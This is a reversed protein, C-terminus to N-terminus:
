FNKPNYPDDADGTAHPGPKRSEKVVIDPLVGTKDYNALIRDRLDDPINMANIRDVANLDEIAADHVIGIVERGDDTNRLAVQKTGSIDKTAGKIASDGDPNKGLQPKYLAERNEAVHIYVDQVDTPKTDVKAAAENAAAPAAGLGDQAGGALQKLLGVAGHNAKAAEREIMEPPMAPKASRIRIAEIANSLHGIGGQKKLIQDLLLGSGGFSFVAILVVFIAKKMAQKDTNLQPLNVKIELHSM